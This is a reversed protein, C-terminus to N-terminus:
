LNKYYIYMLSYYKLGVKIKILPYTISFGKHETLFLLVGLVLPSMTVGLRICHYICEM